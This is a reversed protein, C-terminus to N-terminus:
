EGGNKMKNLLVDFEEGTTINRRSMIFDLLDLKKFYILKGNPKYFPLIKKHTLKYLSSKSISLFEAAEESTLFRNEEYRNENAPLKKNEM